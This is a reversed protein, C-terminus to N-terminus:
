PKFLERGVSLIMVRRSSPGWGAGIAGLFRTDSWLTKVRDFVDPPSGRAAWATYHYGLGLAIADYAPLLFPGSFRQRRPDFRRFSDDELASALQSFVFRFAKEEGDRDFGINRAFQTIQDTLFEGFDSSRNSLESESIQRLVLFRVALEMHYQESIGRETLAICTQFAPDDALHKLWRLLTKVEM